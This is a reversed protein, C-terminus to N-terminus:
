VQLAAALRRVEGKAIKGGSARPMEDVVLLREPYLDKGVGCAALHDLLEPLDLTAGHRLSVVACVREGFVEDPVAVVSVLDVHPHTDIEDEVQAASINKGGRIIIDSTRGVVTLFGDEVTVVDGMLMWGDPTYLQENAAPDDYYGACVLPGRGAPRGPGGSATVDRGQEDFLRVQMQPILRGATRLRKERPDHRTTYSLAGTENSGYFQLVIAGTRDEFEAARDYPVAEGGTFMVRLSSLDAERALPSNMLMRLQTSVCCLVTAREREITRILDEIDFKPLVITPVGLVAPAYHSTWLGFGFPAPVAGLFVDDAGLDGADIALQSFYLWRSDFQSVCKPLGTTGSTSNLMTLEHPGLSREAVTAPDSRPVALRVPAAGAVDYIEAVGEDSLVIHTTLGVGAARMRAVLDTAPRGGREPLTVLVRAGTRRVLHAAERDGARIGIGMAIVGARATALMAAHVHVTDPLCVAVTEGPPVGLGVLVQAIDDAFADYARWSTRHRGAVYATADPRRDAQGRVLDPLSQTGWWGADLYRRVLNAEILTSTQETSTM